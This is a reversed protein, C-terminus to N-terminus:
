HEPYTTSLSLDTAVPTPKGVGESDLDDSLDIMDSEYLETWIEAKELANLLDGKENEAHREAVAFLFIARLQMLSYRSLDQRVKRRVVNTRRSSTILQYWTAFELHEEFTEPDLSVPLVPANFSVHIGREAVFM